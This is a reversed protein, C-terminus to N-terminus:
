PLPRIDVARSQPRNGVAQFRGVASGLQRSHIRAAALMDVVSSLLQNSPVGAAGRGPRRTHTAVQQRSREVWPRTHPAVVQQRIREVLQCSPSLLLCFYDTRLCIKVTFLFFTILIYSFYYHINHLM